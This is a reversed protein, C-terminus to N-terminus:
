VRMARREREPLIIRARKTATLISHLRDDHFGGKRNDSAALDTGGKCSKERRGTVPGGSQGAFATM